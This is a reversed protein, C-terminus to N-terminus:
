PKQKLNIITSQTEDNSILECFLKLLDKKYESIIVEKNSIVGYINEDLNEIPIKVLNKDSIKGLILSNSITIGMGQSVLDCALLISHVEIEVRPIYRFGSFFSEIKRRSESNKGLLILNRNRLMKGTILKEKSLPDDSRCILVNKSKWLSHYEFQNSKFDKSFAFDVEKNKVADEIQYYTGTIIETQTNPSIKIIKKILEKSIISALTFPMAIKISKENYIGSRIDRAIGELDKSDKILKKASEYIILAENTPTLINKKRYFLEIGLENELQSIHRSAGSQSIGLIDAALNTTGHAIVNIFTELHKLNM